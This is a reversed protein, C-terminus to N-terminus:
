NTVYKALTNTCVNTARLSEVLINRFEFLKSALEIILHSIDIHKFAIVNVKM